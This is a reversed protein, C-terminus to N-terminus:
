YRLYQRQKKKRRRIPNIGMATKMVHLGIGAVIATGVLNGINNLM